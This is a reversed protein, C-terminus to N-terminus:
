KSEGKVDGVSVNRHCYPCIVTESVQELYSTDLKVHGGCLPCELDTTLATKSSDVVEFKLSSDMVVREAEIMSIELEASEWSMELMLDIDEETWPTDLGLDPAIKNLYNSALTKIRDLDKGVVLCNKVVSDEHTVILNYQKM